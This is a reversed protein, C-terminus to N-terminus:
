LPNISVLHEPVDRAGRAGKVFIIVLVVKVELLGVDARGGHPDM